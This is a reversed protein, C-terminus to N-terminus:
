AKPDDITFGIRRKPPTPSPQKLKKIEEVVVAIISGHQKQAAELKEMRAALDKHTALVERLKVFARIIVINMQVAQKSSLVSSLMAVGHETFAYPLYRRGGYGSSSTASQLRLNQFEDQTLQFMFDEPFRDLNRRVALNLNKTLVQYLEALDSDLMVKQGRILYIRREIVEAPVPLNGTASSIPAKAM